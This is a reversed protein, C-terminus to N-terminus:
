HYGDICFYGTTIDLEMWKKIIHRNCAFVCFTDVCRVLLLQVSLTYGESGGFVYNNDRVMELVNDAPM